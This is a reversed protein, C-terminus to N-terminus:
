FKREALKIKLWIRKKRFPSFFFGKRKNARYAALQRRDDENGIFESMMRIEEENPIGPEKKQFRDSLIYYSDNQDPTQYQRKQLHIYAFEETYVKDHDLYARYVSGNECYFVQYPYNIHRSATMRKIRCSIDAMDERAYESVGQRLAIAMQGAHEDFSYFEPKSFVERYSFSAGKQRYLTRMRDTNKYVTLHGLRYIKEMGREIPDKIFKMLDGFIMDLDCYGWYAYGEFLDRFIDGYAPKFDTLKYPSDIAVPFDFQADIKKVIEEWSMKIITVNEPVNEFDANDTILFFDVTPNAACSQLWLAFYGPLQGFYCNLLATKM